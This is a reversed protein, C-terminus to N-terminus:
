LDVAEVPAHEEREDRRSRDVRQEEADISIMQPLQPLHAVTVVLPLLQLVVVHEQRARHRSEHLGEDGTGHLQDLNAQLCGSTPEVQNKLGM